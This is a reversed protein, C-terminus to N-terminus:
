NTLCIPRYKREAAATRLSLFENIVM